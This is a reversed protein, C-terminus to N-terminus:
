RGCILSTTCPLPPPYTSACRPPVAIGEVPICVSLPTGPIFTISLGPHVKPRGFVALTLGPPLSPYLPAPTEPQSAWPRLLCVARAPSQCLLHASALTNTLQSPLAIGLPIPLPCWSPWILGNSSTPSQHAVTMLPQSNCWPLSLLLSETHAQTHTPSVCCGPPTYARRAGLMCVARQKKSGNTEARPGLSLM